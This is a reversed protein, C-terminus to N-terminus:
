IESHRSTIEWFTRNEPKWCIHSSKEKKLINM